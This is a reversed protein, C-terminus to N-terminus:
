RELGEKIEGVLSAANNYFIDDRAEDSLDQKRCARLVARVTEYIMFTMAFEADPPPTISNPCPEETLFFCHRNVCLHRGRLLTVPLDSAFLVHEHPIKALLVEVSETDDLAAVDYYLNELHRFSPIAKEIFYPGYSRGVHALIVRAGPHNECLNVVDGINAPDAIRGRRPVHLVVALGLESAVEMQEKPFFDPVRREGTEPEPALSLYPKLGIFEGSKVEEKLTDAPIDPTPIFLPHLNSHERGLEAIWRNGKELDIHSNPHHFVMAEWQQEPFLRRMTEDLERPTFDETMPAPATTPLEDPNVGSRYDSRRLLHVHSDFIREPLYPALEDEYIPRDITEFHEEESLDKM